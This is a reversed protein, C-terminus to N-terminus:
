FYSSNCWDSDQAPADKDYFKFKPGMMQMPGKWPVLLVRNM